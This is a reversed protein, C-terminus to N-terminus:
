TSFVKKGELPQVATKVDLALSKFNDAAARPVIVKCFMIVAFLNGSALVGGFGVVSRIGFPEVFDQQAPIYPSGKADAVHFVNYTKQQMDVLLSPEPKIVSSAELGFQNILQSIMPIQAIVKESPLPIAKHGNSNKRSNWEAKDGVTGLLTLCKVAKVDPPRGLIGDAFKQLETDLEGYAHTKYFRVLACAKEGPAAGGLENYLHQVIKNAADEVSGAGSSISRLASGCQAADSQSFGAIDYM